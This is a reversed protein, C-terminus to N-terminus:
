ANDANNGLDKLALRAMLGMDKDIPSPEPDYQAAFGTSPSQWNKENAYFELVQLLESRKM